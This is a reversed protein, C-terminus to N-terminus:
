NSASCIPSDSFRRPNDRPIPTCPTPSSPRATKSCATWFISRKGCAAPSSTASCPSTVIRSTTTAIGGSSGYRIHYEALLNREGLDYKTGDDAARREDGWLKPLAFRHFGDNLDTLAKELATGSIHRRHVFSLEHPSVIGRLHRAAQTPGLNCGYAFVTLLYRERPRELKPDNGTLPGFHRTWDIWHSTDRLIELLHREPLRQRVATELARASASPPPAQTRKLVPLGNEGIILASNQPYDLDVRNAADSLKDRLERVFTAATEPIGINGCYEPLRSAVEPWDLLQRRYDAFSESGGVSVDGSKLDAALRSFVAVEFQRRDLTVNEGEHILALRRWSTSAFSLDLAAELRNARKSENNKLFEVAKALARDEHTPQFDLTNLLRFLVSRHSRYHPWLLGHYDDGTFALIRACELRLSEPDALITRVEQGVQADTRSPDVVQLLNSFMALLRGVREQIGARLAELEEKGRRHLTAM